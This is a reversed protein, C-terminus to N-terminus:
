AVCPESDAADDSRQSDAYADRGPYFRGHLMIEGTRRMRAQRYRRMNASNWDRCEQCRCRRKKYSSNTGHNM